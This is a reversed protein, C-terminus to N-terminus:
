SPHYFFRIADDPFRNNTRLFLLVFLFSSLKIIFCDMGFRNSGRSEIQFTKKKEKGLQIDSSDAHRGRTRAFLLPPFFSRHVAWLSNSKYVQDNRMLFFPSVCPHFSCFSYSVKKPNGFSNRARRRRRQPIFISIFCSFPVIWVHRTYSFIAKKNTKKKQKKQKRKPASIPYDFDDHSDVTFNATRVHDM